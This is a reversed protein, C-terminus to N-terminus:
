TKLKLIADARIKAEQELFYSNVGPIISLWKKILDIIKKINVKAKHLLTNIERATKEGKEKFESQKAPDLRLYIDKFDDELIKEIAKEEEKTKQQANSIAVISAADSEAASIEKIVTEKEARSVKMEAGSGPQATVSEISGSQPAKENLNIIESKKLEEPM